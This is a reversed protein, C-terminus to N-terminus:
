ERRGPARRPARGPSREASQRQGRVHLGHEVLYYAQPALGAEEDEIWKRYYKDPLTGILQPNKNIWSAVM